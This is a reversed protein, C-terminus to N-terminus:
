RESSIVSEVLYFSNENRAFTHQYLVGDRKVIEDDIYYPLNRADGAECVGQSFYNLCRKSNSLEIKLYYERIVVTDKTEYADKLVSYSVYNKRYDKVLCFYKTGDNKCTYGEYQIAPYSMDKDLNFYKKVYDNVVNNSFVMVNCTSGSTFFIKDTVQCNIKVPEVKLMSYDKQDLRSLTFTVLEEDSLENPILKAKRLDNNYIRDKLILVTPDNLTLDNRSLMKVVNYKVKGFVVFVLVCIIILIGTLIVTKLVDKM